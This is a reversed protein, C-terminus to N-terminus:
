PTDGPEDVEGLRQGLRGIGLEVSEQAPTGPRALEWGCRVFRPEVLACERVNGAPQVARIRLQELALM